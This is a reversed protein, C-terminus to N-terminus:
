SHALAVPCQGEVNDKRAAEQIANATRSPWWRDRLALAPQEILRTMVVGVLISGAVYLLSVWAQPLEGPRALEWQELGLLVLVHWLYIGYSCRGVAALPQTLRPVFGRWPSPQRTPTPHIALLLLGGCGLYLLTYGATGMFVSRHDALLPVCALLACVVSLLLRHRDVFSRTAVAHFQHIYGLLVGFFLADLRNPTAFSHTFPDYPRSTFAMVRLALSCVAIATVLLPVATFPNERRHSRTLGWAVLGLLLYFHEEVALSWTHICLGSDFNQIFLLERWLQEPRFPKGLVLHSLVVAGIFLYFAPYIKFARRAYFRKLDLSGHKRYEAFLLSSVLFGSLVFFLDVGAWGVQYWVPHMERHRGLVLLIAVGRLVDLAAM